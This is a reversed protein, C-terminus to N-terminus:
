ELEQFGALTSVINFLGDHLYPPVWRAMFRPRRAYHWSLNKKWWAFQRVEDIFSALAGERGDEGV